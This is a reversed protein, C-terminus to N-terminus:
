MKVLKIIGYFGIIWSTLFPAPKVFATAPVILPSPKRGINTEDKGFAVREIIDL